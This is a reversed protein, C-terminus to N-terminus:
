QLGILTSVLSTGLSTTYRHLNSSMIKYHCSFVRVIKAAAPAAAVICYM